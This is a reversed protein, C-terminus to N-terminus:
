KQKEKERKSKVYQTNYKRKMIKKCEESCYKVKRKSTFEKGCEGCNFDDNCKDCVKRRLDYVLNDWKVSM